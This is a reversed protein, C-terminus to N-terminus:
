IYKTLIHREKLLIRMHDRANKLRRKVTRTDVGYYKAARELTMKENMFMSIIIQDNLPLMAMTEWILLTQDKGIVVDEVTFVGAVDGLIELGLFEPECERKRLLDYAENVVMSYVYGMRFNYLENYLSYVLHYRIAIKQMVNAVVDRGDEYAGVISSAVRIYLNQNKALFDWLDEKETEEDKLVCKILLGLLIFLFYGM